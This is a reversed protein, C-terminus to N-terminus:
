FSKKRKSTTKGLVSPDSPCIPSKSTRSCISNRLSKKNAKRRESLSSPRSNKVTGASGNKHLLASTSAECKMRYVFLEIDRSSRAAPKRGKSVLYKKEDNTIGRRKKRAIGYRNPIAEELLVELRRCFFPPRPEKINSLSSLRILLIKGIPEDIRM